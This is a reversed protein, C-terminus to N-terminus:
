WMGSPLIIQFGHRFIAFLVLPAMVASAGIAILHRCGYIWMLVAFFPISAPVFGVIPLVVLFALFCTLMAVPLGPPRYTVAWRGQGIMAAVGRILLAASLCAIISIILWPFFSPGPTGPIAAREPLGATLYAYWVAFCLLGSGAIINRQAMPM